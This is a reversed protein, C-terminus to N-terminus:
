TFWRLVSKWRLLPVTWATISTVKETRSPSTRAMTPSDPEPFLTVARDTIPSSSGGPRTAPPSTMKLPRSRSVSEFRSIRAMRPLWMEIIKWSGIVLRFGTKVTSFWSVSLM